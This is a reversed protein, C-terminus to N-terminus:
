VADETRAKTGVSSLGLRSLAHMKMADNLLRMTMASFSENAFRLIAGISTYNEDESLGCQANVELVYLKGTKSDTRIDIRGYGTGRVALYASKSVREIEPHLSQEPVAYRYVDEHNPMASETEYTEWLRDFSLFRETSPLSAHFVREVPPYIYLEHESGILFTTFERGDLFQEALVGGRQLDWGRYGQRLESMCREVDGATSVVNRISLGMSGASVAPKIIAPIGCKEFIENPQTDDLIECWSATPLLHADFLRKMDIKSTTAHYFFERAGTYAWGRKELARVVSIGPVGNTEDGDCLNLVCPSRPLSDVAIEDLSREVDQLRLEKSRWKIGLHSFSRSYEALAPEFDYYYKINPDETDLAPILVWVAYDEISHENTALPHM